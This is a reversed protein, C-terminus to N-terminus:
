SQFPQHAKRKQKVQVFACFAMPNKRADGWTRVFAKWHFGQTPIYQQVTVKRARHSEYGCRTSDFM